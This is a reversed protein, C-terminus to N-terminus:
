LQNPPTSNKSSKSILLAKSKETLDSSLRALYLIRTQLNKGRMM